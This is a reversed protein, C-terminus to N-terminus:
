KEQKDKKANKLAEELLAIHLMVGQVFHRALKADHRLRTADNKWVEVRKRLIRIYNLMVIFTTIILIIYTSEM